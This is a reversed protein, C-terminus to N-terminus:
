NNGARNSEIIESMWDRLMSDEEGRPDPDLFTSESPPIRYPIIEEM